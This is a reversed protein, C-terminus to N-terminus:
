NGSCLLGALVLALVAIGSWAVMSRTRRRPSNSAPSSASRDERSDPSPTAAVTASGSSTAPVQRLRRHLEEASIRERPHEALASSLIGTVSAPIEPHAATVPRADKATRRALIAQPTPGTHPSEGVVLEYLVCALSYLDSSTDVPEGRAQEPSMYAPTGVLMGTATLKAGASSILATALGFNTLFAHGEALLINEPKVDRHVVGQRHAYSLAEAVDTAVGIAEALPLKRERALRERLSEGELHPTAYWPQVGVEGSELVPVIHPHQLRSAVGIERRFRDADLASSLAPHLVKVAVSRAHKQDRAVFVRTTGDQRALEREVTYRDGLSQQLRERLKPLQGREPAAAPEDRRVAPPTADRPTPEPRPIAAPPSTPAAQQLRQALATVAPDPEAGLEERLLTEHVRAHQLAGAPSGSAALAQMLEVAIRGNLPDLAAARRWWRLSIETDGGERAAKALSQVTSSARSAYEARRADIWYEFEASGPLHFGDLFPGRYAAAAQELDGKDHAAVFQGVDSAIATPNLRLDTTGLLLDPEGLGHRLSHLLQRLGNRAKEEDSEPWLYLILKERSLGTEGADALLALLALPRRQAAVTPAPPSADGKLSLGGFTTLQWM